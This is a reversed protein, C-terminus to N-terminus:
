KQRQKQWASREKACTDAHKEIFARADKLRREMDDLKLAKRADMATQRSATAGFKVPVEFIKWDDSRQTAFPIHGGFRSKLNGM